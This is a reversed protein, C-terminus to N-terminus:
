HQKNANKLVEDLRQRQEANLFPKIREITKVMNAGGDKQKQSVMHKALETMLQENSLKSYGEIVSRLDKENM